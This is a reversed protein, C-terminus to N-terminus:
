KGLLDLDAPPEGTVSPVGLRNRSLNPIDGAYPVRQWLRRDAPASLAFTAWRFAHYSSGPAVVPGGLPFFGRDLLDRNTITDELLLQELHFALGFGHAFFPAPKGLEMDHATARYIVGTREHDWEKDDQEDPRSIKLRLSQNAPILPAGPVKHWPQPDNPDASYGMINQALHPDSATAPLHLGWRWHMHLVEDGGLPAEILAFNRNTTEGAGRPDDFGLYPHIHLNDYEGQGPARVVKLRGNRLPNPIAIPTPWAGPWNVTFERTNTASRPYVVADFEVPHNLDPEGYDFMVDWYPPQKLGPLPREDHNTDAFLSPVNSGVIRELGPPDSFLDGPRAEDRRTRRPAFILKLDASFTPKPPNDGLIPVFRVTLMPYVKAVFAKGAPDQDYHPSSFLYAQTIEMLYLAGTGPPGAIIDPYFLAMVGWAFPGGDWARTGPRVFKLVDTCNGPYPGRFQDRVGAGFSIRFVRWHMSEVMPHSAPRSFPDDRVFFEWQDYTVKALKLGNTGLGWKASFAPEDGPGGGGGRGAVKPLGTVDATPRSEFWDSGGDSPVQNVPISAEKESVEWVIQNETGMGTVVNSGVAGLAPLTDLARLRELAAFVLRSQEKTPNVLAEGIRIMEPALVDKELDATNNPYGSSAIRHIGVWITANQWRFLAFAAGHAFVKGDVGLATNIGTPQLIGVVAPQGAALDYNMGPHPPLYFYGFYDGTLIRDRIQEFEARAAEATSFIRASLTYSQAGPKDKYTSQQSTDIKYIPDTTSPDDLSDVDLAMTSGVAQMVRQIRLGQRRPPPTTEPPAARLPIAAAPVLLLTLFLPLCHCSSHPM